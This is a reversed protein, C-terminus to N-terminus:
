NITINAAFAKVRQIAVQEVQPRAAAVALRSYRRATIGARDGYRYGRPAPRGSAAGRRGTGYEGFLPYPAGSKSVATPFLRYTKRNGDAVVEDQLSALTAGTRYWRSRISSEEERRLIRSGEALIDDRMREVDSKFSHFIPSLHLTVLESM